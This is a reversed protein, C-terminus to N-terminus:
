MGPANLSKFSYGGLYVGLKALSEIVKPKPAPPKEGAPTEQSRASDVSDASTARELPPASSQSTTPNAEATAPKHSSRKVKVLIKRELDKLTPLNCSEISQSADLPVNVMVDRWYEDMIEVMIEQQEHGAHVELSVILPLNSAQFAYDRITACVARFPMDKTLTYGHLVRPEARYSSNSRWPAIKQEGSQPPPSTEATDGSSPSSKRGFRLELRKRIGLKEKKDKKEKIKPTGYKRMEEEDSSSDSPEEGDWVDIEVCRCGRLLVNKYADTSSESSLQNGTLYTNHSSSIFYNSIPHSEDVPPAAKQASASGSLFYDHFQTVSGGQLLKLDEQSCNQEETLWRIQGETTELRYQTELEDHIIQLYKTFLPSLSEAAHAKAYASATGGGAQLQPQDLKPAGLKPDKTPTTGTM